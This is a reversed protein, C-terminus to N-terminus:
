SFKCTKNGYPSGYKKDYCQNNNVEEIIEELTERYITIVGSGLYNLKNSPTLINGARDISVTLYVGDEKVKNIIEQKINRM